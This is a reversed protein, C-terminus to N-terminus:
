YKKESFILKKEIEEDILGNEKLENLNNKSLFSTVGVILDEFIFTEIEENSLDLIFM